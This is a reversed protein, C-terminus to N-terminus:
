PMIDCCFVFKQLRDLDNVSLYACLEEYNRILSGLPKPNQRVSEKARRLVCSLAKDTVKTDTLFGLISQIETTSETLKEYYSSKLQLAPQMKRTMALQREILMWQRCCNKIYDCLKAGSISVTQENVQNESYWVGIIFLHRDFVHRYM